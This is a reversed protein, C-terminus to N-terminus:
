VFECLFKVMDDPPQEYGVYVRIMVYKKEDEKFIKPYSDVRHYPSGFSTEYHINHKDSLDKLKSKIPWIKMSEGFAQNPLPINLVFISPPHKIKVLDTAEPYILQESSFMPKLADLVVRTKASSRAIRDGTSVIVTLIKQCIETSVHTGFVRMYHEIPAALAKRCIMMGAICSANSLYKSMSEIVIDAGHHFPNFSCGSLWTNDIVLIMKGQNDQKIKQLLTYDPVIGHPNSCSELLALTYEKHEEPNYSSIVDYGQIQERSLLYQCVRPTECFLEDGLLFRHDKGSFTSLIASIAAMGSPLILATYEEPSCGYYLLLATSLAERSVSTNRTYNGNEM